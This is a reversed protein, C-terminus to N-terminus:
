LQRDYRGNKWGYQAGLAFGVALGITLFSFGVIAFRLWIM